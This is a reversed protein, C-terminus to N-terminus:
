IELRTESNLEPPITVIKLWHTVSGSQLLIQRQASVENATLSVEGSVDLGQINVASGTPGSIDQWKIAYTGPKITNGAVLSLYVKENYHVTAGIGYCESIIVGSELALPGRNISLM